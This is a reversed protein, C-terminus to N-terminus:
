NEYEKLLEKLYEPDASARRVDSDRGESYLHNFITIVKQIGEAKSEAKMEEIAQCMNVQDEEEKMEIKLGAAENLLRVTDCDLSKYTKDDGIIIFARSLTM